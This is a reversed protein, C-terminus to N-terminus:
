RIEQILTAAPALAEPCDRVLAKEVDVLLNQDAGVAFDPAPLKNKETILLLCMLVAISAPAWLLAPRWKSKHAPHRLGGSIAERQRAWFTDPREAAARFSERFIRVSDKFQESESGPVSGDTTHAESIREKQREGDFQSKM